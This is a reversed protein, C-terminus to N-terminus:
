LNYLKTLTAESTYSSEGLMNINLRELKAMKVGSEQKTLIEIDFADWGYESLDEQFPPYLNDDKSLKRKLKSETMNSSEPTILTMGNRECSIRYLKMKKSM